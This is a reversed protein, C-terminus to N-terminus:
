TSEYELRIQEKRHEIEREIKDLEKTNKPTKPFQEYPIIKFYKKKLSKITEDEEIVKEIDVKCKKKRAM